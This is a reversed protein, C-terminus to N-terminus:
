RQAGGDLPQAQRRSHAVLQPLILLDSSDPRSNLGHIALVNGSPRLVDLHDSVDFEEWQIATADNRSALALTDWQVDQPVNSAAIREGNLYAVFGDDFKMRLRLSVISAVDGRVDFRTRTLVGNATNQMSAVDLGILSVYEAPAAEYGVGTIGERWAASEQFDIQTWRTGLRDGGNTREPIFAKTPANVDVLFMPLTAEAVARQQRRAVSVPDDSLISRAFGAHLSAFRAVNRTRNFRAADGGGLDVSDGNNTSSATVRGRFVHVESHGFRNVKVGFETGLDVVVSSPTTISFGVAPRPVTATLSGAELTGKGVEGVEYIAPGELIVSAGDSYTVEVLGDRLDVHQGPLLESAFKLPSPMDGWVCAQTATIRAVPQLRSASILRITNPPNLLALLSIATVIFISAAVVSTTLPREILSAMARHSWGQADRTEVLPEHSPEPATSVLTDIDIAPLEEIREVAALSGLAGHINVYEIYRRRAASSDRLMENLREMQAPSILKECLLSCLQELELMTTDNM